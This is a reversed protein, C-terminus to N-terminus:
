VNTKFLAKFLEQAGPEAFRDFRGAFKGYAKDELRGYTGILHRICAHTADPFVYNGGTSDALGHLYRQQVRYDVILGLVNQLKRCHAVVLEVEDRAYLSRFTELLYRLKKATKRTEHLVDRDGTTSAQRGQKLLKQYVRWISQSAIKIVPQGGAETSFHDNLGAALCSRYTDTFKVFRDSDLMTLLRQHIKQRREALAARLPEMDGRMRAPLMALYAPIDLLFVDLDRHESTENSLWSFIEKFYKEPDTPLVRKIQTVLTRSRRSAIRFDHLFEVDLDAKIGPLNRMMVDLHFLLTRALAQGIRLEPTFVANFKNSYDLPEKQQITLLWQFPDAVSPQGYTSDIYDLLRTCVKQYGRLPIFRCNVLVTRYRGIRDPRLYRESELRLLVKGGGDRVEYFEVSVRTEDQRLLRRAAITRSLFDRLEPYPVNWNFDPEGGMEFTTQEGRQGLSRLRCKWPNQQDTEFVYGQRFLRWDFTDYYRRQIESRPSTRLEYQEVIHDLTM